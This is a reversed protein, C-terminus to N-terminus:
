KLLQRKREFLVASVAASINLSNTKGDMPITGLFDCSEKVLRRIGDGESGFVIGAKSKYDIEYWNKSDISNEIGTIWYGNEKLSSITNTINTVIYIDMNFFAGQSVQIVTDTIHVSNHRPLIIGNIGACECTRIIQGLNQPDNMQDIIIYCCNEENNEINFDPYHILFTAAVGQTHKFSFKNIFFNKDCYSFNSGELKSKLNQNLAANSEKVIFIKDIQHKKNSDLLSIVNNIGYVTNLKTNSKIM